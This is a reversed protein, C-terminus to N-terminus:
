GLERGYAVMQVRCIARLQPVNCHDVNKQPTSTFEWHVFSPRLGGSHRRLPTASPILQLPLMVPEQTLVVFRM